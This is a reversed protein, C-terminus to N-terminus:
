NQSFVIEGGVVTMAVRAPEIEGPRGALIDRDVVALDAPRGPAILGSRRGIGMVRAAGATYAALIARVPLAQDPLFPAM